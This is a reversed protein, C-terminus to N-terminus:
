PSRSSGPPPDSSRTLLRRLPRGPSQCPRPLPQSAAPVRARRESPALGSGAEEAGGHRRRRPPAPLGPEWQAQAPPPPPPIIPVSARTLSRSQARPLGPNGDSGWPDSAQNTESSLRAKRKGARPSGPASSPEPERRRNGRRAPWLSDPTNNRLVPARAKEHAVSQAPPELKLLATVTKFTSHQRAGFGQGSGKRSYILTRVRFRPPTRVSNERQPQWFIIATMPNTSHTPAM